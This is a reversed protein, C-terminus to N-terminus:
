PMCPIPPTLVPVIVLISAKGAPTNLSVTVLSGPNTTILMSLSVM